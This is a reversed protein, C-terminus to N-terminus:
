VNRQANYSPAFSVRLVAKLIPLNEQTLFDTKRIGLITFLNDILSNCSDFSILPKSHSLVPQYSKNVSGELQFTSVKVYLVENPINPPHLFIVDLIHSYLHVTSDLARSGHYFSFSVKSPNRDCLGKKYQVLYLIHEWITLTYRRIVRYLYDM